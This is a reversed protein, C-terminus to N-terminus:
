CHNTGSQQYNENKAGRFLSSKIMEMLKNKNQVCSFLLRQLCKEAHKKRSCLFHVLLFFHLSSMGWTLVLGYNICFNPLKQVIKIKPGFDDSIGKKWGGPPYERYHGICPPEM